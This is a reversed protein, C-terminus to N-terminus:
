EGPCQTEPLLRIMQRSLNALAAPNDSMQECLHQLARLPVGDVAIMQDINEQLQLLKGNEAGRDIANKLLFRRKQAFALPDCNNLDAVFICEETAM